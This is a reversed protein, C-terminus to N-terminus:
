QNCRSLNQSLKKKMGDTVKFIPGHGPVIYDAINAIVARSNEQQEPNVSGCSRWIEPQEIDEEREFIDGAIVVTGMDETKIVVSVDDATHGPTPIVTIGEDIEFPLGKDFPHLFYKDKVSICYGVIHKAKLFLNNNGTHDSHGHTSIVYNIDDPTLGNAELSLLILNTDWPTMTDVIINKSGTVLVCSCNARVFPLNEDKEEIITSSYGTHLVIVTNDEKSNAM